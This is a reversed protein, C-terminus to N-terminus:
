TDSMENSSIITVIHIYKNIYEDVNVSKLSAYKKKLVYIRYTYYHYTYIHHHQKYPLIYINTKDFTMSQVTFDDSINKTHVITNCMSLNTNTVTIHYLGIWYILPEENNMNDIIINHMYSTPRFQCFSSNIQVIQVNKGDFHYKM